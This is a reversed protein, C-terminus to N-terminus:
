CERGLRVRVGWTPGEPLSAGSGTGEVQTKGRVGVRGEDAWGVRGHGPGAGVSWGSAGCFIILQYINAQHERHAWGEARRGAVKFARLWEGGAERSGEIGLVRANVGCCSLQGQAARGARRPLACSQARVARLRLPICQLAARGPVASATGRLGPRSPCTPM